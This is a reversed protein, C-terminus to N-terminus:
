QGRKTTTIRLIDQINELGKCRGEAIYETRLKTLTSSDRERSSTELFQHSQTVASINAAILYDQHDDWAYFEKLSLKPIDAETLSPCVLRLVLHEESTLGHDFGPVYFLLSFEEGKKEVDLVSGAFLLPASDSRILAKQLLYTSPKTEGKLQDKWSQTIGYKERFAKTKADLKAQTESEPAGRAANEM